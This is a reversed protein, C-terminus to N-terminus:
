KLCTQLANTQEYEASVIAARQKHDTGRNLASDDDADMKRFATAVHEVTVPAYPQEDGRNQKADTRKQIGRRKGTHHPNTRVFCGM